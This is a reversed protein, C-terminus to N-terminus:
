LQLSCSSKLTKTMPSTKAYRSKFTDSTEFKALDFSSCTSGPLLGLGSRKWNQRIQSVPSATSYEYVSDQDCDTTSSQKVRSKPAKPPNDVVSSIFPSKERNDKAHSRGATPNHLEEAQKVSPFIAAVSRVQRYQRAKIPVAAYALENSRVPEELIASSGVCEPTRMEIAGQRCGLACRPIFRRNKPASLSLNLNRDLQQRTTQSGRAQSSLARNAGGSRRFIKSLRKLLSAM